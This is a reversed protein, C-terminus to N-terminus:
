SVAPAADAAPRALLVDLSAPGANFLLDVVSLDPVFGVHEFQQPYRPCQWNQRVVRIGAGAFLHAELHHAAAYDGTLYTTAGLRRCIEVLRPTARGSVGMESSLILRARIGLLDRLAQLLHLNLSALREWPRAYADEFVERYRRFFPARSYNTVLAQRHRHAWREQPNVRVQNIARGFADVVPVTLYTWGAATKIRNRNQWGNKTYQADDLLVFVDARAMKDVYRLWPLYHPQHIAVIM